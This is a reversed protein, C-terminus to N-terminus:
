QGLKQDIIEKFAELPQAGVLKQGNIFFTPTSAVGYSQGDKLDKEVEQLYRGSDLCQNFVASELGLEQAYRKLDQLSLAQQNAFLKDHYAWFKGQEDACESAEAAKQANKHNPLPFDRLVFRVKDPYAELVKKITEEAKTCYPCEYDSFVVIVVPADEPGLAPDDDVGVEMKVEPQPSGEEQAVAQAELDIAQPFLLKGDRTIYSDFTQEGVDVQFKYLGSTNFDAINKLSATQGQPINKDIFEIAKQGAEQSSLLVLKSEKKFNFGSTLISVVLLIGIIVTPLISFLKGNKIEKM